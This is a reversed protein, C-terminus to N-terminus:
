QTIAKSATLARSESDFIDLASEPIWGRSVAGAGRPETNTSQYNGEALIWFKSNDAASSDAGSAATNVVQKREIIRVVTGRRLYGRSVGGAGPEIFLHTFSVNVVGFGIYDRSLPHTAPPM